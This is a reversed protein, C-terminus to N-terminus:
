RLAAVQDILASGSSRSAFRITVAATSPRPTVSPGAVQDIPVVRLVEVRVPDDGSATSPQPTVSPGDGPDDGHPRGQDIM